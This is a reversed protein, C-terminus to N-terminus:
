SHLNSIEKVLCCLVKAPWVISTTTALYFSAECPTWAYEEYGNNLLIRCHEFFLEEVVPPYVGFASKFNTTCGHPRHSHTNNQM